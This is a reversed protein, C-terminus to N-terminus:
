IIGLENATLAFYLNQLIHIFKVPTALFQAHDLALAYYEKNPKEMSFTLHLIFTEISWRYKYIRDQKFGSKKLWDETLPIARLQNPTVLQKPCRDIMILPEQGDGKGDMGWMPLALIQYIGADNSITCNVKNGIRLEQPNIM